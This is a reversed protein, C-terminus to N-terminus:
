RADIPSVYIWVFDRDLGAFSALHRRLHRPVMPIEARYAGPDRVAHRLAGQGEAVVGWGGARARLLRSTVVPVEDRAGLGAVTPPEVVLVASGDAPIEGCALAAVLALAM